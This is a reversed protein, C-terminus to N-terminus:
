SGPVPALLWKSVVLSSRLTRETSRITLETVRLLQTSRQLRSLVRVLQAPSSEAEISVSVIDTGGRVDGVPRLNILAMGSERVAAEVEALVAALEAEANPARTLYPEYAELASSTGEAQASAVVMDVLRQEAQRVQSQLQRVYIRLPRFAAVDVLWVVLLACLAIVWWQQRSTLRKWRAAIWKM